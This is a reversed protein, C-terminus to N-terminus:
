KQRSPKSPANPGSRLPAFPPQKSLLIKLSKALEEDPFHLAHDCISVETKSQFNDDLYENNSTPHFVYFGHKVDLEKLRPNIVEAAEKFLVHFMNTHPVEPYTCIGEFSNIVKAVEIARACYEPVKPLTDQIASRASIINPFQTFLNGGHRRLWVKSKKIFESSGTLISGPLGNLTKYFSVYVSDFESSIEDLPRNYYSACEWLRAGDLHVPIGQEKCHALVEKLESWTPLVGGIERQPLEYLLASLDKKILDPKTIVRHSEGILISSMSHLKEYGGQEHIELHSLPHFGLPKSDNQDFYIKLAIQQAMTGSPMFVAAKHGLLTAMENEFDAILKGGGYFDQREEVAAVKALHELTEKPTLRKSGPLTYNKKM